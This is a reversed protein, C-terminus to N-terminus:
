GEEGRDRIRSSQRHRPLSAQLGEQSVWCSGVGAQPKAKDGGEDEEDRWCQLLGWSHLLLMRVELLCHLSLLTASGPLGAITDGRRPLVLSGTCECRYRQVEM